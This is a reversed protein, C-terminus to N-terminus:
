FPVEDDVLGPEPYGDDTVDGRSYPPDDRHSRAEADELGKEEEYGDWPDQGAYEDPDGMCDEYCPDCISVRNGKHCKFLKPYKHVCRWTCVGLGLVRLLANLIRMMKEIMNDEKSCSVM